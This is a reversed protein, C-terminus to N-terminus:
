NYKIYEVVILHCSPLAQPPSKPGSLHAIHGMKIIKLQAM